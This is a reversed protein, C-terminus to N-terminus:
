KFGKKSKKMSLKKGVVSELLKLNQERETVEEGEKVELEDSYLMPM